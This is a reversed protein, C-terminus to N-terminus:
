VGDLGAGDEKLAKIQDRVIAAEEFAEDAILHELREQLVRIQEQEALAGRQSIPVKGIHGKNGNQAREVMVNVKQAFQEYCHECGLRSSDLVAQLSMGCYTCELMESDEESAKQLLSLFDVSAEAIQEQMYAMSQKEACNKCLFVSFTEGNFEHRIEINAEHEGCSQCIM